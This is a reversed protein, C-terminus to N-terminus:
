FFLREDGFRSTHLESTLRITAIDVWESDEHGPPATLGRVTFLESGSELRQLQELWSVQKGDEGIEKESSFMSSYPENAEYSLIWPFSRDWEFQDQTSTGDENHITLDSVGSSFVFRSGEVLKKQLTLHGCSNLSFAGVRSLM